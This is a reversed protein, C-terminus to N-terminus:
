ICLVQAQTLVLPGFFVRAHLVEYVPGQPILPENAEGLLWKGYSTPSHFFLLIHLGFCVGLQSGCTSIAGPMADALQRRLTCFSPSPLRSDQM